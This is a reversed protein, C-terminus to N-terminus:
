DGHVTEFGALVSAVNRGLVMINYGGELLFLTSVGLAGIREGIRSYDAAVLGFSDPDELATDVGLSVVLVDPSFSSIRAIATGLADSYGDWATGAPLPLNLNYGEGDGWGTEDSYGLFYPYESRPDGHLSTYLVDARNYFITQTGNGHHFDLDLVAPRTGEEVFLQACIAANNLYCYGGYRDETAHHGPPRCVAFAGGAGKAVLRRATLAVDASAMAAEWTHPGIADGDLSYRGLKANINVPDHEPTGPVPRIMPIAEANEDAGLTAVWEAHASALFEVYAPTHVSTLPGTGFSDPEVIDDLGMDHLAAMVVDVREPVESAPVFTVGDFERVYHSRHIERARVTIM